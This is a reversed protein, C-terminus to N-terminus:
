KAVKLRFSLYESLVTEVHEETRMSVFHSNHDKAWQRWEEILQQYEHRYIRALTVADVRHRVAADELDHFQVWRSFPFDEEMPDRLQFILTEHGQSLLKGLERQVPAPNFMLDSILAIIGRREVRELLTTLASAVADSAARRATVLSRLILALQTSRSSCPLWTTRDETALALGVQDNQKLVLYALCGAVRCAHLYKSTGNSAQQMSASNDVVLRVTLSTDELYRKVFFRDHRASAKWDVHKLPDGPQYDKHHDFDTSVGVRKSSHAGHLIGDVRRRAYLELYKLAEKATPPLVEDYRAGSQELTNTAM